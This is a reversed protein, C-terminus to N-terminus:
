LQTLQHQWVAKYGESLLGWQCLSGQSRTCLYCCCGSKYTLAYKTYTLSTKSKTYYHIEFCSKFPPAPRQKRWFLFNIFGFWSVNKLKIFHVNANPWQLFCSQNHLSLDWRASTKCRSINAFQGLEYWPKRFQLGRYDQLFIAAIKRLFVRVKDLGRRLSSYSLISSDDKM